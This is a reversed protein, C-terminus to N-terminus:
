PGSLFAIRSRSLHTPQPRHMATHLKSAMAAPLSQAMSSSEQRMASYALATTAPRGCKWMLRTTSTDGLQSQWPSFSTGM